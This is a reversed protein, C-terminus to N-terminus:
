RARLEANLDVDLTRRNQSSERALEILRAVRWADAATVTPTTLGRISDRVNAYFLRYDGQRTPIHARVLEAPKNTPDPALTLTGWNSEPESIWPVSSDLQPPQRGDAVLHAEQPDLGCKTFSGATGHVRFRPAPDAGIMTAHCTYRLIHSQNGTASPENPRDFELTIDFADEIASGDRDRRVSGTLRQPPGFLALAQDLLHPGLDQLLGHAPNASEKWTGARPAPRFRDWHSTVTVVRGLQGSDLVDRLTQFDGDWRRNHFPFLLKGANDAATLLGRVATSSAAVPKDVVVHKGAGLAALALSEHTDNPTAVVILDVSPDALAEEPSRLLRIHPYQDLATDGHRQTRQVVASLDLGPVASLFPCHFVRGALGYGLVAARIPEPHRDPPPKPSTDPFRDPTPDATM